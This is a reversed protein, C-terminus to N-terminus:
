AVVRDRPFTLRITLGEPNWTRSIEGAFQSKVTANALLSGFGDGDSQHDIRPGGRETWTL